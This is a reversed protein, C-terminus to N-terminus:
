RAEAGAARHQASGQRKWLQPSLLEVVEDAESSEQM